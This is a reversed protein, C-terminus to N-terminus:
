LEVVLKTASVGAKCKKLADNVHELGKGLVTPPPLCKLKGSQLAPTVFDRYVPKAADNVAFIMGTKVNSLMNDTPPPHVCALHGGGLKELIALDRAYTEPTFIADFIGVFESQSAMAANIANEVVSSDRHDFVQAAGYRKVLNHKHAGAIAIVNIGTAAAIQTTMSGISYSAGYVILTKSASPTPDTSHSLPSRASPNLRWAHM